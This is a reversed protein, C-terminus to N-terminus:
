QQGNSQGGITKNIHVSFWQTSENDSDDKITLTVKYPSNSLEFVHIIDAEYSMTGDGFDWTYNEITGDADISGSANYWVLQDANVYVKNSKALATDNVVIDVIPPSNAIEKIKEEQKEQFKYQNEHKHSISSIVPTLKWEAGNHYSKISKNLDIYVTISNNGRSVNFLNLQQVKLWGSPVTFTVNKGTENLVGTANTVNIWLKTYNGIEVDITNILATANSEHLTKLDIEKPETNVYFWSENEVETNNHLKIESFTVNIFRFDDVYEDGVYFSLSATPTSTQGEPEESIEEVCGATLVLLGIAAIIVFIQKKM